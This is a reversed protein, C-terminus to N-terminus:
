YIIGSSELYLPDKSKNNRRLDNPDFLNRLNLFNSDIVPNGPLEFESIVKTNIKREILERLNEISNLLGFNIECVKFNICELLYTATKGLFITDDIM